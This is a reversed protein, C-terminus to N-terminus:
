GPPTRGRRTAAGARNTAAKKAKKTKKAKTVKATQNAAPKSRKKAAPPKPAPASKKSVRPQARQQTAKSAAQQALKKPIPAAMQRAAGARPKGVRKKASPKVDRDVEAETIVAFWANAQAAQVDTLWQPPSSPYPRLERQGFAFWVIRRDGVYQRLLDERVYLV